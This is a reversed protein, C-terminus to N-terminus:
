VGLSQPLERDYLVSNLTASGGGDKSDALLPSKDTSLAGIVTKDGAKGMSDRDMDVRTVVDMAGDDASSQLRSRESVKLTMENMLDHLQSSTTDYSLDCGVPQEDSPASSDNLFEEIDSKTDGVALGSEVAVLDSHGYDLDFNFGNQMHKADYDVATDAATFSEIALLDGHGNPSDSDVDILEMVDAAAQDDYSVGSSVLKRESPGDKTPLFDLDHLLEVTNHDSHDGLLQSDSQNSHLHRPTTQNSSTASNSESTSNDQSVSFDTKLLCIDQHVIDVIYLIRNNHLTCFLSWFHVHAKLTHYLNVEFHDDHKAVPIMNKIEECELRLKDLGNM